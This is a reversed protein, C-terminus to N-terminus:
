VEVMITKRDKLYVEAMDLSEIGIADAIAKPITIMYSNGRKSIKVREHKQAQLFLYAKELEGPSLMEYGCSCRWGSIEAGAVSIKMPKAKGGCEPCELTGDEIKKKKM